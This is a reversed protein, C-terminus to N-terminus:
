KEFTYLYTEASYVCNAGDAAATVIQRLQKTRVDGAAYIGEINTIGDERAVIYGKADLALLPRLYDTDPATGIAVFVGDVSVRRFEQSVTHKLVVSKVEEEGDIEAIQSNWSYEVNKKKQLQEQLISSARLEDRRHILYVKECLDALLIADEVATNGGGVVAVTKDKFFAGDCAACYSVGRGMLEEEGPVNLRRYKTGSAVVITKAFYDRKKTRIHKIKGELSIGLVKGRVIEVELAKIQEMMREALDIGSIRAIGPYNEIEYTNVIQGGWIFGSELLLVSLGARKAYIGASIGAPGSGIIIMDYIKEMKRNKREKCDATYKKCEDANITVYKARSEWINTM